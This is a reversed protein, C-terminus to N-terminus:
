RGFQNSYPQALYLAGTPEEAIGPSKVRVTGLKSDNPCGKGEIIEQASREVAKEEDLQAETCYGFGAAASPNLSM